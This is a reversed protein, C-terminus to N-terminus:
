VLWGAIQSGFQMATMWLNTLKRAPIPNAAVTRSNNFRNNDLLVTHGPDIEASVVTAERIYTFTKWRDNGDAGHERPNWYERLSKGDSFVVQITVPLMFDGVRHVTVTDRMKKSESDPNWWDLPDSTIGDIAYDLVSTGYVAQEFYPDLSSSVVFPIPMTCEPLDIAIHHMKDFCLDLPPRPLIGGSARGRKIAVEAITHLFDETAPHTFRYRMFYTRMAEDMTDRGIIGELTKLLLASKGYTV